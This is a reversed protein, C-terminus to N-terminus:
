VQETNDAFIRLFWIAGILLVLSVVSFALKIVLLRDFERTDRGFFTPSTWYIYESFAAILLTLGFWRNLKRYMLLGLIFFGFGIFWYFRLERIEKSKTEWDTIADRLDHESKYPESQMEERSSVEKGAKEADQKALKVEKYVGDYKRLLDDLSTAASIQDKLPQDYKDLVSGRPEFWLIYAHRITQATLFLLAVIALTKQLANM